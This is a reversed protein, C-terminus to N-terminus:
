NKLLIIMNWYKDVCVLKKADATVRENNIKM